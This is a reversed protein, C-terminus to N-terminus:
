SDYMPWHHSQGAQSVVPRPGRYTLNFYMKSPVWVTFCHAHAHQDKSIMSIGSCGGGTGTEKQASPAPPSSTSQPPNHSHPLLVAEERHSGSIGRCWMELPPPLQLSQGVLFAPHGQAWGRVKNDAMQNRLFKLHPLPIWTKRRM